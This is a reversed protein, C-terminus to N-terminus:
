LMKISQKKIKIHSDEINEGRIDSNKDIDKALFSLYDEIVPLM